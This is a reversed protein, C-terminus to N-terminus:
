RMLQGFIAGILTRPQRKIAAQRKDEATTERMCSREMEEFTVGASQRRCVVAAHNRQENNM